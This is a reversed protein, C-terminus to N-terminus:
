HIEYSIPSVRLPLYKYLSFIQKSLRLMNKKQLKYFNIFTGSFIASLKNQNFIYNTIIIFKQFMNYLFGLSYRAKVKYKHIPAHKNSIGWFEQKWVGWAFSTDTKQTHFNNFVDSPLIDLLFTSVCFKDYNQCKVIKPINVLSKLDLTTYTCYHDSLTIPLIGSNYHM